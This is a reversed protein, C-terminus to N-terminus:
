VNFLVKLYWLIGFVTGMAILMYVSWRLMKDKEWEERIEEMM